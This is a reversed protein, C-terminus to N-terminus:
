ELLLYIFSVLGSLYVLVYLRALVRFRTDYCVMHEVLRSRNHFLSATYYDTNQPVVLNKNERGWLGKRLLAVVDGYTQGDVSLKLQLSIRVKIAQTQTSLVCTGSVHEERANGVLGHSCEEREQGSAGGYSVVQWVCRVKSPSFKTCRWALFSYNHDTQYIERQWWYMHTRLSQQPPCSSLEWTHNDSGSVVKSM